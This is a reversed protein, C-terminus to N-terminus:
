ASCPPTPSPRIISRQLFQERERNSLAIPSEETFRIEDEPIM